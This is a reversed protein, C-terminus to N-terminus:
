QALGKPYSGPPRSKRARRKPEGPNKVEVTKDATNDRIERLLAVLEQGSEREQDPALQDILSPRQSRAPKQAFARDLREGLEHSTDYTPAPKAKRPAPLRNGFDMAVDFLRASVALLSRQRAEERAAAADATLEEEVRRELVEQQAPSRGERVARFELARARKVALESADKAEARRQLGARGTLEDVRAAAGEGGVTKLALAEPIGKEREELYLKARGKEVIGAEGGAEIAAAILEDRAASGTLRKERKENELRILTASEGSTGVALAKTFRSEDRAMKRREEIERYGLILPIAGVSGREGFIAKAAAAADATKGADLLRKFGGAMVGFAEDVSEGVLDVQEPKVGLIQLGKKRTKQVDLSEVKEDEDFGLEKQAEPTLEAGGITVMRSIVNRLMTGAMQPDIVDRAKSFLALQTTPDIGALSMSPAAQALNTLESFQVNTTLFLSQVERMARKLNAATLERDKPSSQAHLFQVVSESVQRADFDKGEAASAKVGKAFEELAGGHVADEYTFGSSILQKGAESVTEFPLSTRNAIAFLKGRAEPIQEEGLQAQLAFRRMLADTSFTAQSQEGRLERNLALVKQLGAVVSGVGTAMAVWKGANAAFYEAASTKADDTRGKLGRLKTAVGEVGEQQEKWARYAGAEQASMRVVVDLAM